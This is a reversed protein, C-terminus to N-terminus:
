NEKKQTIKVYKKYNEAITQLQILSIQAILQQQKNKNFTISAYGQEDLEHVPVKGTLQHIANLSGVTIASVGACVIDKGKIEYGSHGSVEIRLIVQDKRLVTIKIM